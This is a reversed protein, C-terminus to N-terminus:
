REFFQLILFIAVCVIIIIDSNRSYSQKPKMITTLDGNLATNINFEDSYCWRERVISKIQSRKNFKINDNLAWPHQIFPFIFSEKNSIDIKDGFEFYNSDFKPLNQDIINGLTTERNWYHNGMVQKIVLKSVRCSELFSERVFRKFEEPTVCQNGINSTSIAM